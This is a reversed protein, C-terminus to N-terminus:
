LFWVIHSNSAAQLFYTILEACASGGGGRSLINNVSGRVAYAGWDNNNSDYRGVTVTIRGLFNTICIAPNIGGRGPEQNVGCLVFELAVVMM